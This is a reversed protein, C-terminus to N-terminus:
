YSDNDQLHAHTFRNLNRFLALEQGSQQGGQCYTSILICLQVAPPLPVFPIPVGHPTGQM